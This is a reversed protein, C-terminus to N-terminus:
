GVSPKVHANATVSGKRHKLASELKKVTNGIAVYLDKDSAHVAVTAGLFQTQAEVKQEHKEVTLIVGLADLQPFHNEIKAFSNNVAERIGDTIDVHHGSLNLQM